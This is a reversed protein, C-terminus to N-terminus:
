GGGGVCVCVYVCRSGGCVGDGGWVCVRVCVKVEQEGLQGATGKTFEEVSLTGNGDSDLQKFMKRLGKLEDKSLKKALVQGPHPPMPWFYPSAPMELHATLKLSSSQPAASSM